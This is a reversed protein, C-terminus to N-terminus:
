KIWHADDGKMTEYFTKGFAMIANSTAEVLKQLQKIANTLVETNLAIDFKIYYKKIAKSYPEGSKITGKVIANAHNRDYGASMLLKKFRKQTM